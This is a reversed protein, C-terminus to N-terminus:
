KDRLTFSDLYSEVAKSKTFDEPGLAVVQYLRDGVLVLRARYITKKDPLQVNMELGEHKKGIKIKKENVLKGNVGKVAGDRAGALVKDHNKDTVTGKPYDSYTAVYGRDKQDVLFICVDVEGVDTKVKRSLPTPKQPFTISFKGERSTFPETKPKDDARAVCALAVCVALSLSLHRAVANELLL